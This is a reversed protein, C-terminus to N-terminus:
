KWFCAFLFLVFVVVFRVAFCSNPSKWVPEGDKGDPGREGVPGGDGQWGFLKFFFDCIDAWKFEFRNEFARNVPTNM